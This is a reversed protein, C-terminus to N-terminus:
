AKTKKIFMVVSATGTASFTIKYLLDPFDWM